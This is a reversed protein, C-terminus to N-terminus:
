PWYRCAVEDLDKQLGIGVNEDAIQADFMGLQVLRKSAEEVPHRLHFAWLPLHEHDVFDGAKHWSCGHSFIM